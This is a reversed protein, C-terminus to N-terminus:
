PEVIETEVFFKRMGHGIVKGDTVEFSGSYRIDQSSSGVYVHYLGPEVAWQLDRNVFALADVPIRFVVKKKEGPAVSVRKFGKLERVPRTVSKHESGVYLQVVEDAEFNGVNKVEVSVVIEGNPEVREPQIAFNEYVFETYTLGHGFPFLPTAVEDTYDGHWHSRGGSPKVYHFIPVQGVSAPFTIPLKGSPSRKGVLVEAIAKAGAEGPLWAVLIADVKDVFRKLSYPRGVVLVVVMPKGLKSLEVILEEQVGPLKLTASDRSEGTTCDKTLGSRDGVVVVVVDSENAVKLAEGFGDTSQGTVDCGKAYSFELGLSRAADLLNPISRLNEEVTRSVDQLNFKPANFVESNVNELMIKIHALYMYDGLYNRVDAVSPGVFAVKMGRKLPLVGNNKLLVISKGAVEEALDLRKVLKFRETDVYPQDFLGLAFKLRLVRRVARDLVDPPVAGDNVLQELHLFCDIQPLEVDMGAELSLKAAHAKSRAYRHYANLMDVSFYDSVVIGDFGWKERLLGTLMEGYAAMPVGDIESYSNMVSRVKAVRVAVEFPLMFIEQLERPPINSPAWNRGGETFGYGVFHKATAVVESREGSGGQLGAIYAAGMASVLYPSEGFTEEVRGWRPDRSVDLVPALGQHAGVAKMESRIAEAVRQVLEPEWTSAMAIPVPFNTGGLGMYGTLCEEHVIAPIGLRTEEVLFRQLENVFRAAQAPTLNTSGGPRTLQGIGDKLIERAVDLKLNGTEDVLHYGWVSGLQMVKERLTMRSILDEVREDISYSPDKYIESM